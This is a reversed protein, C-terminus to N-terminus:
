RGRKNLQKAEMYLSALVDHVIAARVPAAEVTQCFRIVLDAQNKKVILFPAIRELVARVARRNVEVRYCTKHHSQPPEKRKVCHWGAVLSSVTEVLALHTNFVQIVARYRFGSTNGPRRERWVGITGEGDVIAALWAAQVDTWEFAPAKTGQILATVDSRTKHTRQLAAWWQDRCFVSCYKKPVGGTRKPVVDRGCQPCKRSDKM